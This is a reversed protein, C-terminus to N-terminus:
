PLCRAHRTTARPSNWCKRLPLFLLTALALFAIAFVLAIEREGFRVLWGSIAITHGLVLLVHIRLGIWAPTFGILLAILGFWGLYGPILLLPHIRLALWVIPNSDLAQSRDGLWYGEPQFYLTVAGDILALIVPM